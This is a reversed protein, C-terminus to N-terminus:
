PADFRRPGLKLEYRTNKEADNFQLASGQWQYPAFFGDIQMPGHFLSVGLRDGFVQLRYVIDSIRVVAIGAGGIDATVAGCNANDAGVVVCLQADYHGPAPATGKLVDAATGIAARDPAAAAAVSLVLCAAALRRPPAVM